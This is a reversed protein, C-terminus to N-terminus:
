EGGRPGVVDTIWRLITAVAVPDLRTGDENYRTGPVIEARPRLDEKLVHNADPPFAFVVNPNAVAAEQLPGGDATADIQLDKEGILVLTPITVSGIGDVASEVWLERTFPLNVPSDFSRLV